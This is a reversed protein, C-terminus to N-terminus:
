KKFAAPKFEDPGFAPNLEVGRFFYAGILEGDARRLESGLQLWTEVDYFVTVTTFVDGPSTAPDLKPDAALFADVEPSECTRRIVHCVRGGVESVPRTGLFEVRLQGRDRAAKWARRTRDAASGLGAETLGYRSAAKAQDGTPPVGVVSAFVAGPRWVQLNGNNEGAAYLVGEVTGLSLGGVKVTRAGSEWLMKAAYPTERVAVRLVEPQYLTGALREQKHLTARFGRVEARYRRVAADLMAVPDTRALAAFDVEPTAVDVTGHDAMGHHIAPPGSPDASFCVGTVALIAIPRVVM